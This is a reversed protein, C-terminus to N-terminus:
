NYLLPADVRFRTFQWTDDQLRLSIFATAAGQSFTLTLEYRASPPPGLGLGPILPAEVAGSISNIQQLPGLAHPIGYIYSRLSEASRVALLEGHAHELLAGAAGTSLVSQTVTIAQQRSSSALAQRQWVGYALVLVVTTLLIALLPLPAILRHKM